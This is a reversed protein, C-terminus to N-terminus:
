RYRADCLTFFAEALECQRAVGWYRDQLRIKEIAGNLKQSKHALIAKKKRKWQATTDILINPSPYIRLDAAWNFYRPAVPLWLQGLSTGKAMATRFAQNIIHGSCLHEIGSFLHQSIVIEPEYKQILSVVPEILRSNSAVFPLLPGFGPYESQYGPDGPLIFKQGTSYATEQFNLFEIKNVGLIAAGTRTEKERIPAAEDPRVEYYKKKGVAAGGMNGTLMVLVGRYGQETFKAMTGGAFIELDDAHAMIALICKKM